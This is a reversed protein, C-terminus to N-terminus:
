RDPEPIRPRTPPKAKPKLTKKITAAATAQPPPTPLPAPTPTATVSPIPTPTPNKETAATATAMPTATAPNVSSAVTRWWLLVGIVIVAIVTAVGGVLLYNSVSSSRRSATVGAANARIVTESETTGAVSAAASATGGGASKNTEQAPPATESLATEFSEIARAFQGCGGQRQDPNKELAQLIIQELPLPIAANYQSPAIPPNNVQASKIVFETEGEFPPKGTLLEYLVIGMSYVDTRHDMQKPNVIQEPSMYHPTGIAVGTRTRREEGIMLAIGFDAMYARGAQDILINAPKVDRHIVGHQHTYDLASLVDQSISLVQQKPLPGGATQLRQELSQGDIFPM